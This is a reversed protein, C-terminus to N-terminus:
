KPTGRGPGRGTRTPSHCFSSAGRLRGGTQNPCLPGKCGTQRARRELFPCRPRPDRNTWRSVAHPVGM